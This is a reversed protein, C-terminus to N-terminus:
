LIRKMIITNIIIINNTTRTLMLSHFNYKTRKKKNKCRQLVLPLMNVFMVHQLSPPPPPPPTKYIYYFCNIHLLLIMSLCLSSHFSLMSFCLVYAYAYYYYNTMFLITLSYIINKKFLSFLFIVPRFCSIFLLTLEVVYIFPSHSTTHIYNKHLLDMHCM